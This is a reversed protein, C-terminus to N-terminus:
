APRDPRGIRRSLRFFMVSAAASVGALLAFLWPGLGDFAVAVGGADFAWGRYLLVGLFSALAGRVGTLTVHIGMYLTALHRPAFDHHGLNWALRGGGYGMGLVARGALLVGASGAALGLATLANAGVFLFSHWVRFRAIHVRNLLTAWLPITAVTLATPTVQTLAFSWAYGLGLERDIAIIFPALGAMASMGLVFQAAMFARYDRDDRLVALMGLAGFARSEEDMELRERRTQARGGRWRVHSMAWAGALAGAACSAYFARFAVASGGTGELAWGLLAAVASIVLAIIVAFRAVISARRDRRYNSRWLDSRATVFGALCARGAYVLLALLWRGTPSIPTLAILLVCAVTALQLAVVARARDRGALLRAWVLSTLNAVMPAAAIAAVMYDGAGFTKRAIVGVVGSELCAMALPFTLASRVEWRYSPRAMAPLWGPRFYERVPGLASV